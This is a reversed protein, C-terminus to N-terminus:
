MCTHTSYFVIRKLGQTSTCHLVDKNGCNVRKRCYNGGIVGFTCDANKVARLRLKPCPLTKVGTHWETWRPPTLKGAHMVPWMFSWPHRCRPPTDAEFSTDAELYDADPPDADLYTPPSLCVERWQISRSITLLRTTRMRSSHLRTITFTKMKPVSCPLKQIYSLWTASNDPHYIHLRLGTWRGNMCLTQTQM